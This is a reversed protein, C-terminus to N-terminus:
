KLHTMSPFDSLACSSHSRVNFRTPNRKRFPCSMIIENATVRRRRKGTHEGMRRPTRSDDDDSDDEDSDNHECHLGQKNEHGMTSHLSSTKPSSTTSADESSGFTHYIVPTTNLANSDGLDRAIHELFINAYHTIPASLKRLDNETLHNSVV